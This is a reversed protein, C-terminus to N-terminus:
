GARPMTVALAQLDAQACAPVMTPSRDLAPVAKGAHWMAMLLPTRPAVTFIVQGRARDLTLGLARRYRPSSDYYILSDMAIVHDFTAWRPTLM